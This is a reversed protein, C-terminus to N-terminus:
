FDAHKKVIRSFARRRFGTSGHDPLTDAYAAFRWPHFFLLRPADRV